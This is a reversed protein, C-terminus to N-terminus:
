LTTNSLETLFTKFNTENLKENIKNNGNFKEIIISFINKKENCIPTDISKFVDTIRLFSESIGYKLINVFIKKNDDNLYDNIINYLGKTTRDPENVKFKSKLFDNVKINFNNQSNNNKLIDKANKYKDKDTNGEINDIIFKGLQELSMENIYVVLDKM